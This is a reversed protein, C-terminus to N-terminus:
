RMIDSIGSLGEATSQWAATLLGPLLALSVAIVFLGVMARVSLGTSLLGFQPMTKQLMGIAASTILLALLVPAAVKIALVFSAGLLAVTMELVRGASPSAGGALGMVPVLQFTKVLSGILVRHGGIALFVVIALLEYLRRVVPASDASLPNLAEAISIGAQQGIYSAGLEIGVFVLRAAYGILAGVALEFVLAIILEVVGTPPSVPGLRGTIAIAIVLSMFIRIRVPVAKNGLVPAVFVLGAVRAGVLLVSLLTAKDFLGDM